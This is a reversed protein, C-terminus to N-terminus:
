GRPSQSKESVTSVTFATADSTILLDGKSIVTFITDNTDAAFAPFSEGSAITLITASLASIHYTGDNANSGSIVIKDGVKLGDEIWSGSARTATDPAANAYTITEEVLPAVYSPPVGELIADFGFHQQSNANMDVRWIIDGLVSGRRVHFARISADNNAITIDHVVVITNTTKGDETVIVGDSTLITYVMKGM